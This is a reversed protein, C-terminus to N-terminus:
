LGKTTPEFGVPGVKNKLSNRVNRLRVSALADGRDVSRIPFPAKREDRLIQNGGVQQGVFGRERIWCLGLQVAHAGGRESGRQAEETLWVM